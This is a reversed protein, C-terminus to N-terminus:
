HVLTAKLPMGNICTREPHKSDPSLEGIIPGWTWELGEPGTAQTGWIYLERYLPHSKQTCKGGSWELLQSDKLAAGTAAHRMRQRLNIQSMQSFLTERVSTGDLTYLLANWLSITTGGSWNRAFRIALWKWHYDGEKYYAKIEGM